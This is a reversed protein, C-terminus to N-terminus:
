IDKYWIHTSLHTRFSLCSIRGPGYKVQLGKVPLQLLDYAHTLESM